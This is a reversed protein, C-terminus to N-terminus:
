FLCTKKIDEIVDEPPQVVIRRKDQDLFKKIEERADNSIAILKKILTRKRNVGEVVSAYYPGEVSSAM